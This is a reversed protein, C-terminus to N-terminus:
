TNDRKLTLLHLKVSKSVRSRVVCYHHVKEDVKNWVQAIVLPRVKPRTKRIEDLLLPRIKNEISM